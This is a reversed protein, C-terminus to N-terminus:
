IDKGNIRGTKLDKVTLLANRKHHEPNYFEGEVLFRGDPSMVPRTRIGGHKSHWNSNKISMNKLPVVSCVMLVSMVLMMATTNSKLGM